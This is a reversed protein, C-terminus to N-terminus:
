IHFFSLDHCRAGIVAHCTPSFISTTVSKRKQPELIVASPSQLWSILHNSRPLFAIIFRSLTNFLLSMVRGVFTRISLATTKGTIVYLQSLQITFFDSHWLISAKSSHHQLLSRFTGQIALLDFLDVQQSLNLAPSSPTLTYSPQVADSICQAHVQAFQLLCHPVPLGPMSCDMPDCLTPCSQSFQVSSFHHPCSQTVSSFQFPTQLM